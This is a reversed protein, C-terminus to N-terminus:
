ADRRLYLDKEINQLIPPFQDCLMFLRRAPRSVAVYARNKTYNLSAREVDDLGIVICADFELGKATEVTAVVLQGKDVRTVSPNKVAVGAKRLKDTLADLQTADDNVQLLAISQITKSAALAKMMQAVVTAFNAKQSMLLMPKADHFADGAEFPPFESFARQYFSKLFTGIEWSQRMNKAFPFQAVADQDGMSLGFRLAKPDLMGHVPSVIQRFDTSVTLSGRPHVLSALLSAEQVALDQAEDIVIHTYRPETKHSSEPLACPIERFRDAPDYAEPLAFRLLWAFWSQEEAGYQKAQWDRRIQEAVEAEARLGITGTKMRQEGEALHEGFYRSIVALPDYVTFLWRTFSADFNRRQQEPISVRLLEYPRRVHRFLEDIRADSGVPTRSPRIRHRALATAFAETSSTKFLEAWESEHAMRLLQQVQDEYKLWIAELDGESLLNFFAERARHEHADYKRQTPRAGQKFLWVRELYKEIFDPVFHIVYSPIQLESELLLKAHQILNRNALFVSTLEPAYPVGGNEREGQQDFLFRIRQLAVTTKGPGPAGSVLMFGDMRHIFADVQAPTLSLKVAKLGASRSDDIPGKVVGGPEYIGSIAPLVQRFRARALPRVARLTYGSRNISREQGLATSLAIQLAPHTWSMVTTGDLVINTTTQENAYWVVPKQGSGATIVMEAMAHFPNEAIASLSALERGKADRLDLQPKPVGHAIDFTVPFSPNQKLQKKACDRAHAATSQDRSQRQELNLTMYRALPSHACLKDRGSLVTM